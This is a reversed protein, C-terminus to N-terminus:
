RHDHRHHVDPYHAHSHDLLDHDHWHTHVGDTAGDHSHGHHVDHAHPHAHAASEHHHTHRHDESLHLWAGIAMLAGALALTWTAPEGLALALLAGLFPALGFYAGTRATGLHRLATIFLVLSVGNTALGIVAAVAITVPAPRGSGVLAALALNVPGAVLGKLAALWVADTTSVLRTLNNDLAWCACAGVVALAPWTSGTSTWGQHGLVTAGAVIVAMGIAIRRDLHERFVAWALAATLAGEANLLLSATAAPLHSVGLLLLIPAAVGGLAIAATLPPLDRRGPRPPPRRRAVQVLALGAGSGTYLLGALLYPSLGRDLLLKTLPTAVGFLAASALAALVGPHRLASPFGTAASPFPRGGSPGASM